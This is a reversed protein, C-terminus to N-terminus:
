WAFTPRHCVYSFSSSHQLGTSGSGALQETDSELLRAESAGEALLM